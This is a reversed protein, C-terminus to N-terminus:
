IDKIKMKDNPKRKESHNLFVKFINRIKRISIKKDGFDTWLIRIVKM